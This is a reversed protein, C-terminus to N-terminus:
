ALSLNLALLTPLPCPSGYSITQLVDCAGNPSLITFHELRRERTARLSAGRFGSMKLEGTLEM